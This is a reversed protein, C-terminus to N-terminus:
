APSIFIIEGAPPSTMWTYKTIVDRWMKEWPEAPDFRIVNELQGYPGVSKPDTRGYLGIIPKGLAVAVHLPGTDNGIVVSCRALAATMEAVSTQGALNVRPMGAVGSQKVIEECLAREDPSGFLVIPHKEALVSIVAAFGEEPWRKGEGRSGPILGIANEPVVGNMNMLSYLADVRDTPTLIECRGANAARHDGIARFAREMADMCDPMQLLGDVEENSLLLTM